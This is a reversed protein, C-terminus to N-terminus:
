TNGMIALRWDGYFVNYRAFFKFYYRGGDPAQPDFWSSQLTPRERMAVIIPKHVETPAVLVWATSDFYPTVMYSVTGAYPNMERNSTDMAERNSTINAATRELAPPVILLNHMYESYEGQDDRFTAAAVKITEFNDLSLTSGNLNDQVTTYKAGADLHSNSFFNLGDYALGYTTGDGANLASFVLKNLHRNFNVAAGRVRDNLMGTRDDNVANYSIWTTIDWDDPMVEIHREIFDQVTVGSSGNTPMPTAGIDVFDSTKGDMNHTAAIRQWLPETTKISNLFGARAAAVLHFPVQASIM